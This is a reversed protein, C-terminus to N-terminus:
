PESRKGTRQEFTVENLLRKEVMSYLITGVGLPGDIDDRKGAKNKKIVIVM